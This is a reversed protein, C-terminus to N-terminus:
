WWGAGEDDKMQHLHLITHPSLLYLNAVCNMGQNHFCLFESRVVGILLGGLKRMFLCHLKWKILLLWKLSISAPCSPYFLRSWARKNFCSWAWGSGDPSPPFEWNAVSFENFCQLIEYKMFQMVDHSSRAWESGDNKLLVFVRAQWHIFMNYVRWFLCRLQSIIEVRTNRHKGIDLHAWM